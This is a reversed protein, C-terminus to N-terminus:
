KKPPKPRRKVVAASTFAFPNSEITGVISEPKLSTNIAITRIRTREADIDVREERTKVDLEVSVSSKM